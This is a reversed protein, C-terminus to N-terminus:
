LSVGMQEKHVTILRYATFRGAKIEKRLEKELSEVSRKHHLFDQWTCCTLAPQYVLVMARPISM